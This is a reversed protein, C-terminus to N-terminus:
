TMAVGKKVLNFEKKLNDALQKYKTKNVFAISPDCGQKSLQTIWWILHPNLSIRSDM